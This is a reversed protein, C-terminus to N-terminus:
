WTLLRKRQEASSQIENVTRLIQPRRSLPHDRTRLERYDAIFVRQVYDAFFRKVYAKTTTEASLSDMLDRVNTGTNRVYELLQRAQQAAEVLSEGNAENRKVAQLNLDISRVKGSVFVPGTQAFEVLRDMFQAVAPRMTVM